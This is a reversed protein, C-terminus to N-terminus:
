LKLANCIVAHLTNLDVPKVLYEFVELQKIRESDKEEPYGSMFVIKVDEYITKIKAALEIGDMGSMRIDLLLLDPRKGGMQIAAELSDSFTLLKCTNELTTKNFVAEIFELIEENDDVAVVLKKENQGEALYRVTKSLHGDNSDACVNQIDSGSFGSKQLLREVESPSIRIHKGIKYSKIKGEKAWRYITVRSVKFLGAVESTSYFLKSV